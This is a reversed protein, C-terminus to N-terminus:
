LMKYISFYESLCVQIVSNKLIAIILCASLLLATTQDRRTRATTKDEQIPISQATFLMTMRQRFNPVPYPSIKMSVGLHVSVLM